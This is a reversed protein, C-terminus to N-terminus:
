KCGSTKARKKSLIGKLTKADTKPKPMDEKAAKQMYGDLYGLVKQKDM